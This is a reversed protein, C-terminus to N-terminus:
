TRNPGDVGTPSVNNSDHQALPLEREYHYAHGRAHHAAHQACWSQTNGSQRRVAECDPCPPEIQPTRERQQEERTSM